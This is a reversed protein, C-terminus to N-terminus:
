LYIIYVVTCILAAMLVLLLAVSAIAVRTPLDNMLEERLKEKSTMSKRATGHWIGVVFYAIWLLIAVKGLETM